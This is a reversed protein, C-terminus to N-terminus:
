GFRLWLLAYLGVLGFSTTLWVPRLGRELSAQTPWMFYHQPLPEVGSHPATDSSARVPTAAITSTASGLNSRAVNPAPPVSSHPALLKMTPLAVSLILTAVWAGRRAFGIWVAIRELAIGALAFLAAIATGYLMLDTIM